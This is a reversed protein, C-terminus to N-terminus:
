QHHPWIYALM